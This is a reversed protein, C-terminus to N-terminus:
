CLVTVHGIPLKPGSQPNPHMATVCHDCRLRLLWNYEVFRRVTVAAM